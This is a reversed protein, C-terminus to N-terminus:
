RVGGKDLGLKGHLMTIVTAFEDQLGTAARRVRLELRADEIAELNRFAEDLTLMIGDPVADLLHDTGTMRGTHISPTVGDGILHTEASLRPTGGKPWVVCRRTNM